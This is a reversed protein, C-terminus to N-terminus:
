GEKACAQRTSLSCNGGRNVDIGAGDLYEASVDDIRKDKRESHRTELIVQGLAADGGYGSAFQRMRIMRVHRGAQSEM